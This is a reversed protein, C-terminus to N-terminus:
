NFTIPLFNLSFKISHSYVSSLCRASLCKSGIKERVRSVLKSFMCVKPVFHKFIAMQNKNTKIFYIICRRELLTSMWKSMSEWLDVIVGRILRKISSQQGTSKRDLQAQSFTLFARNCLTAAVPWTAITYHGIHGSQLLKLYQAM